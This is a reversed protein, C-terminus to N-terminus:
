KSDATNLRAERQMEGETISWRAPASGGGGEGDGGGGAGRSSVVPRPRPPPAPRPPAHTGPRGSTPAESARSKTM